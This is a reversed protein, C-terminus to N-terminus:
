RSCPNCDWTAGLSEYGDPVDGGQGCHTGGLEGCSPGRRCCARCDNSVGLSEYGGPCSGSQSCHDGGMAGCSQGCEGCWVINGCNDAQWGCRGAPCGTSQCPKLRCCPSCDWSYGLSIFGQPCSGAPSCYDGGLQGCSPGKRCCASCDGSAGLFQYGAPCAGDQSCHDGGLEGCSAKKRCCAACDSSAGLPEHGAPCTRSQSCVNGGMEGCTRSPKWCQRPECAPGTCGPVTIVSQVCTSGSESECAARRDQSYAGVSECTPTAPTAALVPNYCCQAGFECVNGPLWDGCVNGSEANLPADAYCCGESVDVCTTRVYDITWDGKMGERTMGCDAGRRCVWHIAVDCHKVRCMRCREDRGGGGGGPGESGIQEDYKNILNAADQDCPTPAAPNSKDNPNDSVPGSMVSVSPPCSVCDPLGFTHGAEHSAVILLAGLDTVAPDIYVEARHLYNGATSNFPQMEGRAHGPTTVAKVDVQVTNRGTAREVNRSFNFRVGSGGAGAWGGLAARIASAQDHTFDPSINVRVTAGKSWANAPEGLQQLVHLANPDCGEAYAPSTGYGICFAYVAIAACGCLLGIGLKRM